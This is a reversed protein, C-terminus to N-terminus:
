LSFTAVVPLHDSAWRARGRKSTGIHELRLGDSHFVHDLTRVPFLSPWTRPPPGAQHWCAKVCVGDFCSYEGKSAMNFDGCLIRPERCAPNALWEPGLLREAQLRREGRALGLHTNIVQVHREGVQVSVWLAGRNELKRDSLTPLLASRVRTLPWRSLVATGYEGRSMRLAAHFFFEMKLLEAIRKPQNIRRSRAREVDLEQLAVVDPEADAIVKAIREPSTRGDLGQCRHVNYTMLRFRQM